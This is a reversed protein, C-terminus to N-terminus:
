SKRHKTLPYWQATKRIAKCSECVPFNNGPELTVESPIVDYLNCRACRFKHTEYKGPQEVTEGPGYGWPRGAAKLFRETLEHQAERTISAVRDKLQFQKKGISRFDTVDIYAPPFHEHDPLRLLTPHHPQELARELGSGDVPYMPWVAWTELDELDCTPTMLMCWRREAAVAVYEDTGDFADAVARERVLEVQGPDLHPLQVKRHTSRILILEESAPFFLVPVGVCIDGQQLHTPSDNVYFQDPTLV